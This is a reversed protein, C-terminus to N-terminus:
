PYVNQWGPVKATAYSPQRGGSASRINAAGRSEQRM